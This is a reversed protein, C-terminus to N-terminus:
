SCVRQLHVQTRACSSRPSCHYKPPLSPPVLMGLATSSRTFTTSTNWSSDKFVMMKPFPKLGGEPTEYCSAPGKIASDDLFLKAIHPIKPKLIFTVDGHFITIANTLGQLLITCRYAGLPTQFSTLDCSSVDLSCHDYGVFLDLMSYCARAAKGEVFQDILPPVVVNQITVVNLTQLDHVIQLSGNKKKICFWHSWYSSDLPEYIGVAIKKKFLDTAEDLIGTPIPINKHVWPTHAITPIKVPSLYKDCFQGHEAETWHLLMSTSKSSTSPLSSKKQGCSTTNTILANLREQMLRTGPLFPPPDTPLPPLSLLPDEPRCQIIWFDEPLLAAVPHVKNAAKKYALALTPPITDPMIQNLPINCATFVTYHDFTSMCPPPPSSQFALTSVFGVQVHCPKSPVQISRALNTPNHISINICGDPHDELHCHWHHHFPRGLLLHFLTTKVIHTHVQFDIDGIQM